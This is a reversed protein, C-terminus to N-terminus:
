PDYHSNTKLYIYFYYFYFGILLLSQIGPSPLDKMVSAKESILLCSLVLGGVVM